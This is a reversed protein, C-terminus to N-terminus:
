ESAKSKRTRFAEVLKACRPSIGAWVLKGEQGGEELKHGKAGDTRLTFLEQLQPMDGEMGVLETISILSRKGQKNYGLQVIMSIASIIQRRVSIIPTNQMTPGLLNEIRTIADRASNAHITTMSGDHGTNMAQIMDFVEVGRVEGVLIRDPRMRLANRVLDAINVEELRDDRMRPEKTELTVVHPQQLKLEATDEITIIRESYPIHKSIAELMTTKGTGTGGSILMSIKSQACLKLFEGVEPTITGFEALKELTIDRHPFKRISIVTGHVAMPPAIINVRSGDPLRADVLPRKPDIERGMAHVILSALEDIKTQSSFAGETKILQSQRNIYIDAPGNILIDTVTDDKLFPAITSSALLNELERSRETNQNAIDAIIRDTHRRFM